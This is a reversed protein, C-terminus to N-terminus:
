GPQVIAAHPAVPVGARALFSKEAIRDQAIAVSRSDPSVRVSRALRELSQAPVNEFETTVAACLSALRDLEQADDYAAQIHLDAVVGAPCEAAPDLVAVKYGMSQAAHCFMRGLQGGGLMGLWNGPAIVSVDSPTNMDSTNHATSIFAAPFHMTLGPAQQRGVCYHELALCARLPKIMAQRRCSWIARPRPRGPASPMSSTACRPSPLRWAPLPTCRPTPRVRRASPSLPLRYARPCRCSPCCPIRAGCIARPCPYAM